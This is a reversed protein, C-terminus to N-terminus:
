GHCIKKKLPNGVFSLFIKTAGRPLGHRGSQWSFLVKRSRSSETTRLKQMDTM